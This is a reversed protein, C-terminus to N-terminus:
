TEAEFYLDSGENNEFYELMQNGLSLRAYWKLYKLVTEPYTIIKYKEEWEKVIMEDNYSNHEKFFLDLMERWDGLEEICENIGEIVPKVDYVVYQINDRREEAGFFEADDSGQVGFWFKGEIDGSYYRGM